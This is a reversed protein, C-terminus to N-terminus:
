AQLLIKLAAANVTDGDFRKFAVFADQDVDRYREVLHYFRVEGADRIVYKEFAGFLIHKKATVPLNSVLPEMDQNILVPYGLLRDPVGAQLGPMWLYAGNADKLKRVYLLATDHMAFGVSSLRRYSPDLSHILGLLEDATIVTAAASTVGTGACPVVGKTRSSGTGVSTESGEIRGLREGLMMAIESSLDFYSDQLIESSVFVAKSTYKWAQLTVASYAPDVSTGITTAEALLAGSNSTDAQVPFPLDNGTPTAVVRCVNRMASYDLTTRELVTMFGQPITEKGAGTTAIDLGVRFERPTPRNSEIWGLRTRSYNTRTKIGIEASQPNVGLLKCSARQEATLEPVGGKSTRCLMWSRVAVETHDVAAALQQEPEAERRKTEDPGIRRDGTVARSDAEMEALRAQVAASSELREREIKIEAMVGDYDSNVKTWAARDENTWTAQQDALIRSDAALKNRRDQLEKLTM